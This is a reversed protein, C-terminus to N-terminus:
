ESSSLCSEGTERGLQRCMEQASPLLNDTYYKQFVLQHRLAKTHKSVFVRNDALKDFNFNWKIRMEFDPDYTFYYDNPAASVPDPFQNRFYILQVNLYDM